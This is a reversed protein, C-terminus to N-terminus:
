IARYLGLLTGFAGKSYRIGEYYAKRAWRFPLLKLPLIVVFQSGNIMLCGSLFVLLFSIAHVVQSWTRRPRSAIPIAHLQANATM